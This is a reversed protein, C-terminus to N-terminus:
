WKRTHRTIPTPPSVSSASGLSGLSSAVSAVSSSAPRAGSLRAGTSAQLQAESFAASTPATTITFRPAASEAATQCCLRFGFRALGKLAEDMDELMGQESGYTSLLSEVGFLFGVEVVHDFM